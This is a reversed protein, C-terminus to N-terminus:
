EQGERFIDKIEDLLRECDSLLMEADTTTLDHVDVIENNHAIDIIEIRLNTM